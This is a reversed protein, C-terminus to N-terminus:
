LSSRVAVALFTSPLSFYYSFYPIWVLIPLFTYLFLSFLILFSLPFSFSLPPFLPIVTLFPLPLPPFRFFSLILFFILVSFHSSTSLFPYNLPSSFFIAITSTFLPFPFIINLTVSHPFSLILYCLSPILLFCLLLSFYVLSSSFCTLSSAFRPLYCLFFTFPPFAFCSMTLFVSHHFLLIFFFICPM